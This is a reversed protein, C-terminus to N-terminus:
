PRNEGVRVRTETMLRRRITMAWFGDKSGSSAGGTGDTGRRSGGSPPVRDLRGHLRAAPARRRAPNRDRQDRCARGPRRHRRVRHSSDRGRAPGPVERGAFGARAAGAAPYLFGRGSLGAAGGLARGGACFRRVGRALVPRVGRALEVRPPGCTPAPHRAWPRGPPPECTPRAARSRARGRMSRRSWCCPRGCARNRTFKAPRWRSASRPATSTSRRRWTMARSGSM